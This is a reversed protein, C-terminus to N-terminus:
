RFPYYRRGFISMNSVREVYTQGSIVWRSWSFKEDRLRKIAVLENFTKRDFKM